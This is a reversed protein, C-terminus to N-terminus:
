GRRRGRWRDFRAVLPLFTFEPMPNPILLIIHLREVVLSVKDQVFTDFGDVQRLTYNGLPVAMYEHAFVECRHRLQEYIVELYSETFSADSLVIRPVVTTAAIPKVWNGM